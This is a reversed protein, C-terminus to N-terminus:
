TCIFKGRNPPCPALLSLALISVCELAAAYGMAKLTAETM